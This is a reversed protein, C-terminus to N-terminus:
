SVHVAWRSCGAIRLIASDTMASRSANHSARPASSMFTSSSPVATPEATSARLCVAALPSAYLGDTTCICKMISVPGDTETLLLCGESSFTVGWIEREGRRSQVLHEVSPGKERIM